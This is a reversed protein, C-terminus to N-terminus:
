TCLPQYIEELWDLRAVANQVQEEKPIGTGEFFYPSLILGISMSDLVAAKLLKSNQATESEPYDVRKRNVVAILRIQYANIGYPLLTVGEWDILGKIRPPTSDIIVNFPNIDIHCLTLPLKQLNHPLIVADEVDPMGNELVNELRPIIHNIVVDDNPLDLKLKTLIEGLQQTVGIDDELSTLVSEVSVRRNLAYGYAHYTQTAPSDHLQIVAKTGDAYIVVFTSSGCGQDDHPVISTLPSQSYYEGAFSRAASLAEDATLNKFATPVVSSAPHLSEDFPVRPM